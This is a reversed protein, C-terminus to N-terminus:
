MVCVFPPILSFLSSFPLFSILSHSQELNTINKIRRPSCVKSKTQSNPPFSILPNQFFSIFLRFFYLVNSPSSKPPYNKKM